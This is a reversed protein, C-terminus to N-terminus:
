FTGFDIIDTDGDFTGGDFLAEGELEITTTKADPVGERFARIFYSTGEITATAGEVASVTALDATSAIAEIQEGGVGEFEGYPRDLLVTITQGNITASVGFTDSDFFRDLNMKYGMLGEQAPGELELETTKGDPVGERVAVITYDISNVTLTSGASAGVADVDSTSALFTVEDGGTESFEAYSVNFIGTISSGGITGTVGLSDSDFFRNMNMSYAM